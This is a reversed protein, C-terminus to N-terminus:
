YSLGNKRLHVWPKVDAVASGGLVHGCLLIHDSWDAEGALECALHACAAAPYRVGNQAVATAMGAFPDVGPAFGAAFHTLMAKHGEPITALCFVREYRLLELVHDRGKKLAFTVAPPVFGVQQVFSVLLATPLPGRGASLVFLGSPIRALARAVDSLEPMM